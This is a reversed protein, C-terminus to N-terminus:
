QGDDPANYARELEAELLGVTDERIWGALPRAGHDGPPGYLVRFRVGSLDRREDGFTFKVTPVKVVKTEDM